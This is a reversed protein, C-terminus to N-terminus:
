ENIDGEWVNGDGAFAKVKNYGVERLAMMMFFAKQYGSMCYVYHHEEKKLGFKHFLEELAKNSKLQKKEKDILAKWSLSTLVSSHNNDLNSIDVMECADIVSSNSEQVQLTEVLNHLAKRSLLHAENIKSITFNSENNETVMDRSKQLLLHPKLANVKQELSNVKLLQESLITENLDKSILRVNDRLEHLYKQYLEWNPDLKMIEHVGGRLIKIDKYGLSELLVYLTSAKIGYSKDYIIILKNEDIDLKSFLKELAKPCFYSSSCDRRGLIDFSSFSDIDISKSKKIELVGKDMAIFLIGKKNIMKIAVKPTIFINQEAKLLNLTLSLLLLVIFKNM